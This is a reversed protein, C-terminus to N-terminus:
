SIIIHFYYGITFVEKLKIYFSTLSCERGLGGDLKKKYESDFLFSM